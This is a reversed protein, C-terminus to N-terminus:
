IRRLFPFKVLTSLTRFIEGPHSLTEGISARRGAREEEEQVM